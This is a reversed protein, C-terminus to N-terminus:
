SKRGPRPDLNLGAYEGVLGFRYTFSLRFEDFAGLEPVIFRGDTEQVSTYDFRVTASDQALGLVRAFDYGVHTQYVADPAEGFQRHWDEPGWADRAFDFGGFLPGRRASTGFRFYTTLPKVNPDGTFEGTYAFSSNAPSQGGSFSFLLRTNGQIVRLLATGSPLPHKTALSTFGFPEVVLQHNEDFVIGRDTSTPYDTMSFQVAGSVGADEEPNMNWDELLEPRWRYLWTGPTPDFNFTLTAIKAERNDWTVQFADDPGRPGGGIPPGPNQATGETILPVPGILPRRYTVGVVGTISDWFRRRVDAQAEHKNGAALGEYTYGLSFADMLAPANMRVRTSFGFADGTSTEDDRVLFDSGAVGAGPTTKELRKFPRNLRFPQYLLGSQFTNGGWFDWRGAAEFARQREDEIGYHPTKAERYFFAYRDKGRELTYKTFVSPGYTYVLEPGAMVDLTGYSESGAWAQVGTPVPRGTVRRYRDVDWQEPMLDFLDGESGWGGHGVQRFARVGYTDKDYEVNGSVWRFSDNEKEMRHQDNVPLWFRDAYNGITALRLEGSLAEIPRAALDLYVTQGWEQSWGTSPTTPDYAFHKALPGESVSFGRRVRHAVGDLVVETGVFLTRSELNESEALIPGATSMLLLATLLPLVTVRYCQLM